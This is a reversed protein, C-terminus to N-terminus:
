QAQRQKGAPVFWETRDNLGMRKTIKANQISKDLFVLSKGFSLFTYPQDEHLIRHAERWLPMREKEDITRRAQDIIQDLKPNKYSMFDDGEAVMQSSHFMQYIDNEIGATWGLSVAEFNKNNLREVLVSWDLPDPKLVIGARAYADKMFLVMKEYNASGSPYTLKFEFPKGDASEIVGDGNRDEFGAAKLLEKAKAVDYPWPKVEPSSQKSLPNFPGTAEVAYGLMIEQIMRKRDLLMTMAQRVRVDAFATPKGDRRENWAIYRYGGVPSQYEFHQTRALLGQDASMERYQEPTAGFLDIDGNRFAALHAVDNSIERWVLRDFAPQVGWYRDNRVLQILTGPKWSKPDQLRYPGSGLLLGVSQNFEEPKFSGYFHKPLISMGAALDFAEFYPETYTFTVQDPGTKEVKTIRSYFAKDRPSNIAPDMVFTYSFFVDDATLPVGDSFRLGPRMKFTISLAAPVSTDKAIDADSKGAEKLKQIAADRAASTDNITWKESLLPKWELTDPDRTALSELVYGQVTSAYADSSVLPTLKGVSNGFADVLWGGRAYDPLQQAVRLRSFPDNQADAVIPATTSNPNAVAVGQRLADQITRLDNAQGEVRNRIIRLEDWQRDNQKMALWVSILLAILVLFLFLDKIGFRNEM